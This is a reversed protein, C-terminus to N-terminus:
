IVGTINKTSGKYLVIKKMSVCYYFASNKSTKKQTMREGWGLEESAILLLKLYKAYAALCDLFNM